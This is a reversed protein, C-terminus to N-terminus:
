TTVRDTYQPWYKHRSLPVVSHTYQGNVSSLRGGSGFLPVRLFTMEVYQVMLWLPIWENSENREDEDNFLHSCTYSLWYM